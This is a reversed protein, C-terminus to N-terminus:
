EGVDVGETASAASAPLELDPIQRDLLELGVDRVQAAHLEAAAALREVLLLQQEVSGTHRTDGLLLGVVNGVQVLV